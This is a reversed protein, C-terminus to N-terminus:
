VIADSDAWLVGGIGLTNNETFTGGQIDVLGADARLFGGYSATTNGSAERTAYNNTYTGEYITLKGTGHQLVAGGAGTCTNNKISGYLEAVGTGRNILVAGWNSSTANQMTANKGLVFTASGRNDVMRGSSAGTGDVILAGEENGDMTGLTLKVALNNSSNGVYFMDKDAGITGRSIIITEGSENQININKTIDIRASLAVDKYVYIVIDDADGTGGNTNAVEVAAELTNYYENVGGTEIRAVGRMLTGDSKIWWFNNDSDTTITIDECAAEFISDDELKEAKLLVEKGITYSNPKIEVANTEADYGAVYIKGASGQVITAGTIDNFTLTGAALVKQTNDAFSYGTISITAGSNVYVANGNANATATNGSFQANADSGVITANAGPQVIIAGGHRASENDVYSSNTDNYTGQCYIVGGNGNDKNTTKNGSFVSNNSTVTGKSIIHIAGGGNSATNNTFQCRIVTVNSDESAYIAGGTAGSTASANNNAFTTVASKLTGSCSVAGASGEVSFNQITVYNTECIAGDEVRIARAGIAGDADKNGELTITADSTGDISFKGATVTFMNDALTVAKTITIASESSITLDKEITYARDVNINQSVVVNTGDEAMAMAEEFTPYYTANTGNVNKAEFGDVTPLEKSFTVEINQISTTNNLTPLPCKGKGQIVCLTEGAYTITAYNYGKETDTAINLLGTESTVTGGVPVEVLFNTCLSSGVDRGICGSDKGPNLVMVGIENESKTGLRSNACVNGSPITAESAITVSTYGIVSNATNWSYAYENYCGGYIRRTVTGGLVQVDANGTMSNDAIGQNGGFIQQVQGELMKVSTHSNLGSGNAGGYLGMAYGGDFIIHSTGQVESLPGGAGFVYNVKAGDRITVYTHGEVIAINDTDGFGGGYVTSHMDHSTYDLNENFGAGITVNTNGKVTAKNGGGHVRSDHSKDSATNYINCHELTVNTNKKVIGGALAGGGYIARYAGTKLTVNTSDVEANYAGGYIVTNSNDSTVGSEITFNNGCAYVSSTPLLLTMKIFTVGDRISETADGFSLTQTGDVSTVIIDKEHSKWDFGKPVTYNSQLLITGTIDLTINDLATAFKEEAFPHEYTGYENGDTHATANVYVWSRGLNVSKVGTAGYVTKGDFTKWYPVVTLETNYASDPVNKITYTKFYNALTHIDKPTYEMPEGPNDVTVDVGYLKEYVYPTISAQNVLEIPQGDNGM